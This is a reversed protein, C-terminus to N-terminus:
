KEDDKVKKWYEDYINRWDQKILHYAYLYFPIPSLYFLFHSIVSPWSSIDQIVARSFFAAASLIGLGLYLYFATERAAFGIRKGSTSVKDLWKIYRNEYMLMNEKELFVRIYGSVRFTAQYRSIIFFLSPLLIFFPIPFFLLTLKQQQLLFGIAVLSAAVSTGLVSSAVGNLHLIEDRLAKYEALDYTCNELRKKPETENM